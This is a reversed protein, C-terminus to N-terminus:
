KRDALEEIVERLEMRFLLSSTNLFFNVTTMIALVILVWRFWRLTRDVGLDRNIRDLISQQRIQPLRPLPKSTYRYKNGPVEFELLVDDLTARLPEVIWFRGPPLCHPVSADIILPRDTKTVVVIHTDMIGQQRTLDGGDYGVLNFMHRGNNEWTHMLKVEILQSNIGQSLLLNQLMESIALCNGQAHALAGSELLQELCDIIKRYGPDGLDELLTSQNDQKNYYMIDM